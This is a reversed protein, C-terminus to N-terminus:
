SSRAPNSFFQIKETYTKEETEDFDDLHVFTSEPREPEKPKYKTLNLRTEIPNYFLTKRDESFTFFYADKFDDGRKMEYKYERIWDFEVETEEENINM